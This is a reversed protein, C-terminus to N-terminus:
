KGEGDPTQGIEGPTVFEVTINLTTGDELKATVREPTCLSCYSFEYYTRLLAEITNTLERPTLRAMSVGAVDKTKPPNDRRAM